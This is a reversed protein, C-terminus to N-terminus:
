PAKITNLETFLRANELAVATQDAILRILIEDSQPFASIQESSLSFTGLRQGKIVIPAVLLSRFRLPLNSAIFRKDALVDPVNITQGTVLAHGAIGVGPQFAIIDLLEDNSGSVVATQLTKSDQDLLQISGRDSATAIQVASQIAQDLVIDAEYTSILIQSLQLLSTLAEQMRQRERNWIELQAIRRRIKALEGLLQVRTKLADEVDTEWPIKEANM